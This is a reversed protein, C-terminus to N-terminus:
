FRARCKVGAPIRGGPNPLKLRVGFTGSAADVTRDVIEVSANYTSNLPAETTVKAPRGVKIRGFEGVPLVLEVNLPDVELLRIIPENQNSTALEGPRLVVDVVLGSVPSYVSHQALIEEARKAELVALQQNERAARLQELALLHEAIAEDRANASVFNNKVLEEARELKKRALEARAEAAKLEGQMGARSRALDLAARQPGSALTAILQGRKIYSGREVLVSEIIGDVPSRVAIDQRAELMCDFDLRSQAAAVGGFLGVSLL